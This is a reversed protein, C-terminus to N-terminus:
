PVRLMVVPVKAARLAVGLQRAYPHEDGQAGARNLVVLQVRGRGRQVRYAAGFRALVRKAARAGRARVVLRLPEKVVTLRRTARIARRRSVARAASARATAPSAGFMGSSGAATVAGAAGLARVFSRRTVLNHTM